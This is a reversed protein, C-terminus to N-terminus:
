KLDDELLKMVQDLNIREYSEFGVVKNKNGIRKILKKVFDLITIADATISIVSLADFYKNDSDKEILGCDKILDNIAIEEDIEYYPIRITVEM